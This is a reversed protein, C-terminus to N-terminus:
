VFAAHAFCAAKAKAAAGKEQRRISNSAEIQESDIKIRPLSARISFIRKLLKKHLSIRKLFM